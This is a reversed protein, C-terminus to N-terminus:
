NGLIASSTRQNSKFKGSFPIPSGSASSINSPELRGVSTEKWNFTLIKALIRLVADLTSLIQEVPSGYVRYGRRCVEERRILVVGVDYLISHPRELTM